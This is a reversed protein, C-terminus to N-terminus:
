VIFVLLFESCKKFRRRHKMFFEHIGQAVKQILQGVLLPVLVRLILDIFVEILNVEGVAGPLYMVILMPSIFIGIINGLSAHFVAAAEDGGAAATLVIGANIAMPLCSCIVLGDILPESMLGSLSLLRSVGFVILSVVGFNYFQIFINFPIQRFIIRCFDSTRLGLGAIIFIACVAIWKATIAPALYQAGLPPYARALGIAAMIHIPLDNAVYFSVIKPSIAMFKTQSPANDNSHESSDSPDLVETDIGSDCRAVM